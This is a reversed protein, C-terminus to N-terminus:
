YRSNLSAPALEKQLQKMFVAPGIWTYACFVLWLMNLWSAFQAHGTQEITIVAVRYMLYTLVLLLVRRTIPGASFFSNFRWWAGLLLSRSAKIETLLHIAGEHTADLRLVQLAHERAADPEKQRLLLYGMTLLASSNEPDIALADRAFQEAAAYQRENRFYEALAAPNEPDEPDKDRAEELLPRVESDRNWLGYLSALTRLISADNPDLARAEQLHKEADKFRREAKDITAVAYHAFSSQPELALATESEYRAAHLRRQQYLCLALMAHADSSDPEITLAKRLSEIAGFLDGHIRQTQARSLLASLDTFM